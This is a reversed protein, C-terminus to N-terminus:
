QDFKFTILREHVRLSPSRFRIARSTSNHVKRSGDWADQPHPDGNANLGPLFANVQGKEFLTKRVSNRQNDAILVPATSPKVRMSPGLTAEQSKRDPCMRPNPAVLPSRSDLGLFVFRARTTDKSYM